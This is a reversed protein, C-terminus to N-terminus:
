RWRLSQLSVREIPPHPAHLVLCGEPLLATALMVENIDLHESWSRHRRHEPELWFRAIVAALPVYPALGELAARLQVGDPADRYTQAEREVFECAILGIALGLERFALRRSAPRRLDGQLVYYSLGELAAGLMADSINGFTTERSRILQAVRSADILLGGVGLPDSTALDANEIMKAFDAAARGLAPGAPADSLTSATAELEICTIFGDLPDHHGMSAVLPRSFDTSMKWFMKRGHAAGSDHVFAAHAAAALERAWSNFRPQGTWRGVQDLAHMWKTLYHFYQGDRDWELQEDLSEGLAREPLKKGIRLGGRTPHSEGEEEGLGSIWGTRTDDARYRGLEHHVQDVLRLALDTYRGEGTAQALAVFNCVAFADTWLYRRRPESSALGTREAFAMM